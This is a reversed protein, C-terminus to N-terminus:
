RHLFIVCTATLFSKAIEAFTPQAERGQRLGCLHTLVGAQSTGSYLRPLVPCSACHPDPELAPNVLLTSLM